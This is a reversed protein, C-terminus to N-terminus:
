HQAVPKDDFSRYRWTRNRLRTGNKTLLFTGYIEVRDAISLNKPDWREACEMIVPEATMRGLSKLLTCNIWHYGPPSLYERNGYWSWKNRYDWWPLLSKLGDIGDRLLHNVDADDTEIYLDLLGLLSTLFGDLIGPIPGGPIETYFTSGNVRTRIGGESVDVAFIKAARRLLELLRPRKTLRWGRVLASIAYGQAHASVWPARLNTGSEPNDFNMHWVVAGQREMANHELWDIQTLFANLPESGGRVLHRRLQVMGYWAIFAPWYRLGTTRSWSMPVGNADMRLTEWSLGEDRIYYHLSERPGALTEVALPYTFSFDLTERKLTRCAFILSDVYSSRNM